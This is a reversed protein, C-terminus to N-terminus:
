RRHVAPGRRVRTRRASHSDAIPVDKALTRGNMTSALLALYGDDAVVVEEHVVRMDSVVAPDAISDDDAAARQQRSPDLDAIARQDRTIAHDMLKSADSPERQGAASASHAAVNRREADDIADM